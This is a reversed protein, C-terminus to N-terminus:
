RALGLRGDPGTIMRWLNIGARTTGLPNEIISQSVTFSRDKRSEAIDTRQHEWIRKFNSCGSLETDLLTLAYYLIAREWQPSMQFHPYTLDSDVRGSRYNIRIREPELYNDYAVPTFAETDADWDARLYRFSGNRRDRVQLCGTETYDDCSACGTGGCNYCSSESHFTLQDSPDNYVRYVDVTTLFNADVEGNIAIKVTDSPATQWLTSLPVMERRFTITATGAATVIFDGFVDLLFNGNGDLIYEGALSVSVPRVEWIDAGLRDPFYVHLEERDTLTTTVTILATEFYDDNDEDSYTITTKAALISKAKSGGEIIYGKRATISKSRHRINQNRVYSLEPKYPRPLM